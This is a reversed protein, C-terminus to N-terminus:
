EAAVKAKPNRADSEMKQFLASGRPADELTTVLKFKDLNRKSFLTMVKDVVAWPAKKDANVYVTAFPEGSVDRRPDDKWKVKYENFMEWAAVDIWDFLQVQATDKVDKPMPIGPQPPMEAGLAAKSFYNKFEAIDIGFSTRKKALELEAPTLEFGKRKGMRVALEGMLTDNDMGILVRGDPGINVQVNFKKNIGITDTSVSTPNEIEVETSKKMKATFIFFSLLLFAVDCMATMDISTSKRPVKLKPM